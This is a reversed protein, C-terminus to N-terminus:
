RLVQLDGLSGEVEIRIFLQRDRHIIVFILLGQSIAIFLVLGENADSLLICLGFWVVVLFLLVLSYHVSVDGGVEEVM